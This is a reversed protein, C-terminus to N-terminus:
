ELVYQAQSERVLEYNIGGAQQVMGKLEMMALARSVEPVPLGSYTCIEDVHVPDEGLAGLLCQEAPNNLLQIRAAAHEAVLRLNLEELVNDASLLMHAGDRILRNTGRSSRNVISGPVAFVERGHEAAFGATKLAGSREGAEVVIVALSLGSILRNHPPFNRGEPPTGPPYDSLLAGSEIIQAALKHHEAPYVRDVGSGLVALTRGGTQLAAEHAIRDIGRALGSVLTM